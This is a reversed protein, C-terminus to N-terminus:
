DNRTFLYLVVAFNIVKGTLETAVAGAIGFFPILAIALFTRIIPTITTSIYLAKTRAHAQFVTGIFKQPFFLLTLAFFQSYTVAESYAPFFLNFIYPAALVYVIVIVAMIIFMLMMKHVLAKKITKFDQKAFKPFALTTLRQFAASIQLPMGKAIAYVAVQAPGIFQWLLISDLAASVTGLIGMLSLHKGYSTTKPDINTNDTYKKVVAQFVVFRVITYTLFYSTLIFVLNNTVFLTAVIVLTSTGQIFIEYFTSTRFLKKGTLVSNYISLSDVFPIFLAVLAFAGALVFNGQVAYYIAVGASAISGLVGWKIKTRLAMLPTGEYGQTVSKTTAPGMGALTPIALLGFMSFIYRYEGYTTKPLLNAFAVSLGFSIAASFLTKLFLWFGGEALYVMDTKTYKESWRLLTYARKKLNTMSKELDAIM